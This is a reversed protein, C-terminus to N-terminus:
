CSRDCVADWGPRSADCWGGGVNNAGCDSACGGCYDGGVICSACCASMGNGGYYDSCATSCCQVCSGGVCRGADLCSTDGEEDCCYVDAPSTFSCGGPLSLPWGTVGDRAMSLYSLETLPSLGAVGGSVATVALHLTTLQTLPSLGSVDGSVATWGLNLTTLATLASLSAVDGSIATNYLSLDTLAVLTSLSSIGGSVATYSLYLTALSGLPGLSGVDGTLGRQQVVTSSLARGDLHLGTVETGTCSVGVWGDACPDTGPLWTAALGDGNGSAMFALLAVSPPATECQDGRYGDTCLCAGVSCSGHSGCGDHDGVDEFTCGTATIVLPWGTVATGELHLFTLEGLSALSRCDGSVATNPLGLVALSTLRSVSAVDGTITTDDLRLSTLSTMGEIDALDGTVTHSVSLYTLSTMGALSRLSGVVATAGLDLRTLGTLSALAGIDGSIARAAGLTLQTLSTFSAFSSVDGNVATYDLSLSTLSGSLPILSGVDGTLGSFQPTSGGGYGYLRLGTVEAGTCSVGVWGDACPDTDNPARQPHRHPHLLLWAGSVAAPGGVKLTEAALGEVLHARMDQLGDGPSLM